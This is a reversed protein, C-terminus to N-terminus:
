AEGATSDIVIRQLDRMLLIRLRAFQCVAVLALGAILGYWLGTAGLPDPRVFALWWGLPIALGWFGVLHLLMPVRTDGIGRLIGVAVVQTGDFVQFLGALPVLTAAVALVAPLDTLLRALIGPVLLFLAGFCLMVGVGALLGVRASARAGVPDGRGIANGVRISAAMSIGLPVMFSTSALTMAVQHGALDVEGLNGMMVAVSAFAGIEGFWQVGIPLGLRLMRGLARSDFIGRVPIRLVRMLDEGAVLPLLLVMMWRSAVTAWASGLAGMAPAGLHGGILMWDLGVNLLNTFFVCFLLPRLLHMAQLVQRFAIFALFPPFGVLLVHTFPAAVEVVDAPQGLRTLAWHAPLVPLAVLVCLVMALVLGRRLARAIAPFDRAGFAQSVLPDLMTMAGMGIALFLFSYSNAIASAAFQVADVRGLFASDVIGMAMLGLQLAVVPVALRTQARIERMWKERGGM